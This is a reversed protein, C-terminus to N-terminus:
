FSRIQIELYSNVSNSTWEAVYRDPENSSQIVPQIFAGNPDSYLKWVKFINGLHWMYPGSFVKVTTQLSGFWLTGLSNLYMEGDPTVKVKGLGCNFLIASIFGLNFVDDKSDMQTLESRLFEEDVVPREVNIVTAPIFSATEQTQTHTSAGVLPSNDVLYLSNNVTTQIRIGHNEMLLSKALDPPPALSLISIDGRELQRYRTMALLILLILLFYGALEKHSYM